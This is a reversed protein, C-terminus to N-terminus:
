NSQETKLVSRKANSTNTHTLQTHTHRHTAQRSTFLASQVDLHFDYNMQKWHLKEHVNMLLIFVKRENLIILIYNKVVETREEMFAEHESKLHCCIIRNDKRM